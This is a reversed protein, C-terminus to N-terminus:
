CDDTLRVTGREFVARSLDGTVEATQEISRAVQNFEPYFGNIDKVTRWRNQLLSLKLTTPLDFSFSTCFVLLSHGFAFNPLGEHM